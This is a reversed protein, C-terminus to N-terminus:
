VRQSQEQEDCDRVESGEVEEEIIDIIGSSPTPARADWL